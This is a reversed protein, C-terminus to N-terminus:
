IPAERPNADERLNAGERLLGWLIVTFLESTPYCGERASDDM